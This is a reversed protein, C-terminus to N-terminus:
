GISLAKLSNFSEKTFIEFQGFCIYCTGHNPRTFLGGLFFVGSLKLYSFLGWPFLGGRFYVGMKFDFKPRSLKYPQSLKMDLGVPRQPMAM